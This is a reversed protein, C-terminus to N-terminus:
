TFQIRDRAAEVMRRHSGSLGSLDQLGATLNEYNDPKLLQNKRVWVDNSRLLYNTTIIPAGHALLLEIVSLLRDMNRSIRSLTPVYMQAENAICAHILQVLQANLPDAIASEVILREDSSSRRAEVAEAVSPVGPIPADPASYGVRGGGAAVSQALASLAASARPYASVLSGFVNAETGPDQTRQAALLWCGAALLHSLPGAAYTTLARIGNANVPGDAHAAELHSNRVVVTVAAKLDLSAEPPSYAAVEELFPAGLMRQTDRDLRAFADARQLIDGAIVRAADKGMDCVEHLVDPIVTGCFQAMANPDPKTM